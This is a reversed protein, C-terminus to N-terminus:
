DKVILTGLYGFNIEKKAPLFRNDSYRNLEELLINVRKSAQESKQKHAEKCFYEPLHELAIALSLNQIEKINELRTVRLDEVIFDKFVLFKPNSTFLAVKKFLFLQFSFKKLAIIGSKKHDFNKNRYDDAHIIKYGKQKLDNKSKITKNSITGVIIIAEAFFIFFVIYWFIIIM